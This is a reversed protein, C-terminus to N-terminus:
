VFAETFNIQMKSIKRTQLSISSHCHKRVAQWTCTDPMQSDTSNSHFILLVHAKGELLICGSPFSWDTGKNLTYKNLKRSPCPVYLQSGNRGKLIKTLHQLCILPWKLLTSNASHPHLLVGGGWGSQTLPVTVLPPSQLCCRSCNRLPLTSGLVQTIPHSSSM